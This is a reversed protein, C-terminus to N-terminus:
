TKLGNKILNTKKKISSYLRYIKSILRKGTAQKTEKNRRIGKELIINKHDM